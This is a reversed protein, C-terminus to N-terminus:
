RSLNGFPNASTEGTLDTTLGANWTRNKVESVAPATALDDVSNYTSGISGKRSPSGGTSSVESPDDPSM